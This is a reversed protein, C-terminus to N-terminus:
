MSNTLMKRISRRIRRRAGSFSPAGGFPGSREPDIAASLGARSHMIDPTTGAVSERGTKRTAARASATPKAMTTATAAHPLV